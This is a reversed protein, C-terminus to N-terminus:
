TENNEGKIVPFKIVECMYPKLPQIKDLNSHANYVDVFKNLVSLVGKNREDQYDAIEDRFPQLNVNIVKRFCFVLSKLGMNEKELFKVRQELETKNM